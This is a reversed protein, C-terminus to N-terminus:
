FNLCDIAEKLQKLTYGAAYTSKTMSDNEYSHGLLESVKDMNVEARKLETAVTHRFSYMIKNTNDPLVKIITQNFYRSINEQKFETQLSSLKNQIGLELLRNHLPIKRRSQRTKLEIDDSTLDFYYIGEEQAIHCKWLESPRMGTYALTYYIYKKNDLKDFEHFLIRMDKPSFPERKNQTDNPMILRKCPNYSIIGNDEMFSFLQKVIKLYKQQTSNSIIDESPINELESLEKFTM